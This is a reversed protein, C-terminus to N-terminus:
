ELYFDMKINWLIRVVVSIMCLQIYKGFQVEYNMKIKQKQGFFIGYFNIDGFIKLFYCNINLYELGGYLELKM